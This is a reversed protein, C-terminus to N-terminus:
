ARVTKILQYLPMADYKKLVTRLQADSRSNLKVGYREEITKVLTDGGKVKYCGGKNQERTKMICNYWITDFQANYAM